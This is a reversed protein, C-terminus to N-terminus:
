TSGLIRYYQVCRGSIQNLDFMPRTHNLSTDHAEGKRSGIISLGNATKAIARTVCHPAANAPSKSRVAAHARMINIAIKEFKSSPQRSRQLPLRAKSTSGTIADM